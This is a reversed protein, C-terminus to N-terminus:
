DSVGNVDREIDEVDDDDGCMVMTERRERRRRRTKVAVFGFVMVEMVDGSVSVWLVM